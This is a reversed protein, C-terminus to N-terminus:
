NYVYQPQLEYGCLNKYYLVFLNELDNKYRNSTNAPYIKNKNRFYKEGDWVFKVYQFPSQFHIWTRQLNPCIEKLRSFFDSSLKRGVAKPNELQSNLKFFEQIDEEQFQVDFFFISLHKVMPINVLLASKSHYHNYGLKLTQLNPFMSGNLLDEGIKCFDTQLTKINTFQKKIDKFVPYLRESNQLSLQCLTGCCYEALYEEIMKIREIGGHEYLIEEYLEQM